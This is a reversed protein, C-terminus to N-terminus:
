EQSGNSLSRGFMILEERKQDSLQNFIDLIERSNEESTSAPSLSSEYSDHRARKHKPPDRIHNLVKLDAYFKEVRSTSTNQLTVILRFGGSKYTSSVSHFRITTEIAAEEKTPPRWPTTVIPGAEDMTWQVSAKDHDHPTEIHFVALEKPNASTAFNIMLPSQDGPSPRRKVVQVSLIYQDHASLPGM